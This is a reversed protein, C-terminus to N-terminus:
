QVRKHRCLNNKGKWGLISKKESINIKGIRCHLLQRTKNRKKDEVGEGFFRVIKKYIRM